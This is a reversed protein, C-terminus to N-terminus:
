TTVEALEKYGVKLVVKTGGPRGENDALDEVTFFVPGSSDKNLLALRKATIQMGMSKKKEASKSNIEAAKKRGVGDDTITCTLTKKDVSLEIDLHGHEEKHMLGHWIANEAFPQLLMPPVFVNGADM